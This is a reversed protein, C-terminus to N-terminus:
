LDLLELALLALLTSMPLLSFTCLYCHHRGNFSYGLLFNFSAASRFLHLFLRSSSYLLLAYGFILLIWNFSLSFFYFIIHIESPSVPIGLFSPSTEPLETCTLDISSHQFLALLSFPCVSFSPVSFALVTLRVSVWSLVLVRFISCSSHASVSQLCTTM